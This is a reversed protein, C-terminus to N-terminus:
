DIRDFNISTALTLDFHSAVSTHDPIKDPVKGLM